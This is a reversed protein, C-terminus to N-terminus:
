SKESKYVVENSRCCAHLLDRLISAMEAHEKNVVQQIMNDKMEADMDKWVRQIYAVDGASVRELAYLIDALVHMLNKGRKPVIHCYDPANDEICYKLHRCKADFGKAEAFGQTDECLRGKGIGYFRSLQAETRAVNLDDIQCYNKHLTPM